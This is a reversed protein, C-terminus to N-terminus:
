LRVPRDEFQEWAEEFGVSRAWKSRPSPAEVSDVVMNAVTEWQEGKIKAWSEGEYPRLVNKANAIARGFKVAHGDDAHVFLRKFVSEWSTQSPDKKAPIYNTIEDPLLAPAGQSAYITLDMYGKFKLLRIKSAESLWPQANFTTFFISSNVAHMFYFDFRVQKPPHQATVTYYLASSTMEATKRELEGPSVTWQKVHKITLEPARNLHGLDMADKLHVSAMLEKDEKIENLIQLMMKSSPETAVKEVELLYNSDRSDHVAAEALAEAIIAPQRFEIGFGLHILPHLLGAFTRALLDDAQKTGSFLYENLVNEWGKKEMERQFFTVYDHYYTEKGLYKAFHEQNAMDTVTREEVPFQPRQYAANRRYHKEIVSAPAGLSYLTLLHHVIHNHFGEDNFFIHHIAHNEQLLQSTKAASEETPAQSHVVGSDKLTLHIKSPTAM